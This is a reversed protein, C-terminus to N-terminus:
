FAWALLLMAELRLAGRSWLTAGESTHALAPALGLAARAAVVLRGAAWRARVPLWCGPAARTGARDSAWPSSVSFRQVVVGGALGVDLSAPGDIVAAGVGAAAQGEWVDIASEPSRAGLLDLHLRLRGRAHTALIGFLPDSGGARWLAGVGLGVEWRSPDPAPAGSVAAGAATAPAPSPEARLATVSRPPTDPPPAVPPTRPAAAARPRDRARAALVRAMEAVKHAVELHWEAAATGRAAAVTSRLPPADREHPSTASLLLAGGNAVSVRVEVDAGAGPAVVAFGEQVLRLAVNRELALGQIQHYAAASLGRLDFAVSAAADSRDADALLVLALACAFPL